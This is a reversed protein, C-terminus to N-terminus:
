KKVLHLVLETTAQRASRLIANGGLTSFTSTIKRKKVRFYEDSIEEVRTGSLGNSARGAPFTVLADAGSAAVKQMLEEFASISQTSRCFKSQPRQLLPVYRGSGSVEGVTGLAIAELVHYFRSYQVESYPPDIFAIDGEKMKETLRIADSQLATGKLKAIRSSNKEFEKQVSATLDKLWAAALHPLASDKTGFPQATHGPSAACTSAASILAALAATSNKKPLSFRLADLHMAQFPSYYYGGYARSLEFVAPLEGCFERARGVTNRMSCSSGELKSLKLALELIGINKGLWSFANQQWQSWVSRSCFILIQEVQAAALVVAYKQLDGAFVPVAFQQAVHGAVSGSGCFLDFFRSKGPVQENLLEGLGNRLMATKSGMYKV